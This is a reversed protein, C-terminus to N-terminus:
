HRLKAHLIIDYVFCITTWFMIDKDLVAHMVSVDLLILKIPVFKLVIQQFVLLLKSKQGVRCLDVKREVDSELRKDSMAKKAQLDDYVNDYEYVTPDAALAKEM